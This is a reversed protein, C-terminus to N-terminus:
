RGERRQRDADRREAAARRDGAHGRPVRQRGQHRDGSRELQVLHGATPVETVNNLQKVIISVTASSGAYLGTPTGTVDIVVPFSAVNASEVPSSAWRPWRATCRPRRGRDPTIVAQDGDAVQGIETDDVTTNVIDSNTGIVVVQASSTGSGAASSGSGAGSSGTGTVQQGVTLSVSAVTGSITSTLSADSLATQATSLSAEASTVSAEDSDLQTTSAAAAQDSALRANAAALQAQAASVDDSLSTTGLTALVQGLAVTQGAKVNVATVTGSVGFNLSAQSAPEITGSTAVTQQITGTTASVVQTSVVVGTPSSTGSTLWLSLGVAAGLVAVAVAVLAVRHRRWRSPEALTMEDDDGLPLEQTVDVPSDTAM